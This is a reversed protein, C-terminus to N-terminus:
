LRNRQGLKKLGGLAERKVTVRVVASVVGKVVVVM